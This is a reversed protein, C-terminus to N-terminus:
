FAYFYCFNTVLYAQYYNFQPRGGLEGAICALTLKIIVLPKYKLVVKDRSTIMAIQIISLLAFIAYCICSILALIGSVYVGGTSIVFYFYLLSVVENYNFYCLLIKHNHIAVCEINQVATSRQLIGPWLQAKQVSEMTRLLRTGASLWRLQGRLPGMGARVSHFLVVGFLYLWACSCGSCLSSTTTWGDHTWVSMIGDIIWNLCCYMM